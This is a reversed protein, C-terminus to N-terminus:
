RELQVRQRTAREAGGGPRAFCSIRKDKDDQATDVV